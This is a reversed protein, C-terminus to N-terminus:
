VQLAIEDRDVARVVVNEELCCYEYEGIALENASRVFIFSM